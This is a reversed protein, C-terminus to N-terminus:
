RTAHRRRAVLGLGGLTLLALSTPEPVPTYEVTLMPSDPGWGETSAFDIGNTGAPFPLIAWGFNAAGNVWAQVDATLNAYYRSDADGVVNANGDNLGDTLTPAVAAEVGDNQVGAGYSNWTETDENWNKLMRHWKWGSGVSEITLRLTANTITAGPPIQNTGNGVLNDFSLLGHTPNVSGPGDDGDITISPAAGSNLDPDVFRLETDRAGTYGNLGQQLVLTAANASVALGLVGLGTIFTRM